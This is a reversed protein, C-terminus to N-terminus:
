SVKPIYKLNEIQSQTYEAIEYCYYGSQFRVPFYSNITNDGVAIKEKPDSEIIYLFGTQAPMSVSTITAVAYKDDDNQADIKLQVYYNTYVATALSATLGTIPDFAYIAPGVYGNGTPNAKDISRAYVPVQLVDVASASITKTYNNETYDKAPDDKYKLKVTVSNEKGYECTYQIDNIQQAAKGVYFNLATKSSSIPTQKSNNEFTVSTETTSTFSIADATLSAKLSKKYPTGELKDYLTKAVNYAPSGSKFTETATQNSTYTVKGETVTLKTTYTGTVESPQLQDYEEPLTLFDKAFTKGDYNVNNSAASVNQVTINYTAEEDNWRVATTLYNSQQQCSALSLMFTLAIVLLVAAIKFKRM